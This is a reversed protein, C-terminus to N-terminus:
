VLSLEIPAGNSGRMSARRQGFVLEDRSLAVPCTAPSLWSRGSDLELLFLAGRWQSSRPVFSDRAVDSTM